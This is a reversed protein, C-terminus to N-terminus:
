KMLGMNGPVKLPMGLSLWQDVPSIVSKPFWSFWTKAMLGNPVKPAFPYQGSQGPTILLNEKMKVVLNEPNGPFTKGL